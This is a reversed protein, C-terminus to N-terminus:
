ESLLKELAEPNENIIQRLRDVAKEEEGEAEGKSQYIDEEAQEKVARADPTYVVGCNSCAKANEPLPEGCVDCFDPTLSSKEDDDRLGAGIEVKRINDDDSLHSYTKNMVQSDPAHGILWKITDNDLNYDKKAITVFNHRVKHPTLPKNIEAKERLQKIAYGLTNRSVMETGDTKRYRPKQTILYADPNKPDPHYKLWERVSATAGLLPRKRGVKNAGKLGDADGNLYYVGEQIDIDKIRLSRIATNRQGTYLLLDFIAKDRPHDAAERLRHIENKTLMDREDVDTEDGQILTIDNPDVGLDSHYRYFRRCVGQYNRISNNSLGSEKVDPHTGQKMENMLTNIDDASAETLSTDLREAIRKLYVTYYKLTSAAKAKTDPAYEGDSPLSVGMVESDYADGLRLIADKDAETIKRAEEARETSERAERYKQRPTTM